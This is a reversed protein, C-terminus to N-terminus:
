LKKCAGYRMIGIRTFLSAICAHSVFRLIRETINTKPGNVAGRSCKLLAVDSEREKQRHRRTVRQLFADAAGCCHGNIIRGCEQHKKGASLAISAIPGYILQSAIWRRANERGRLPHLRCTAIERNNKGFTARPNDQRTAYLTVANVHM